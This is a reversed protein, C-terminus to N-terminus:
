PILDAGTIIPLAGTGYSAFTIMNNAAGSSPPILTERWTDGRLFLINDGPQFTSANIKAITRWPASQTVGANADNGQSSSVYYTTAQALTTLLLLCALHLRLIM